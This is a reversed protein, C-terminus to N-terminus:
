AHPRVEVLELDGEPVGIRELTRRPEDRDELSRLWCEATLMRWVTIAWVQRQRGPPPPAPGPFQDRIAAPDVYQAIRAEDGALLSRALPLDHGALAEHFIADFTSKAPRVRVPEPVLGEVARRLLPRSYRADYALEPPFSLVLEILDRDILPHRSAFGALAARQRVHDYALSPGIRTVAWTLFALWRPGRARKWEGGSATQWMARRLAPDMWPPGMRGPGRLRRRAVHARAPILGEVGYDRVWKDVTKRSVGAHAGPMQRVLARAGRVRGRRLRDSMLYPSAGYLEDGGEGDLLVEIGDAVVREMLPVWFFLNPSVPPLRFREVYPLVGALLSGRRVVARTSIVGFADTLRDIQETEDVTPHDPFVASYARRPRDSEPLLKTAVGGVSSSDLGGSLLVGTRETGASCRRVAVTLAERLLATAEEAGVKRPSPRPSWWRRTRGPRPGLELLSGGEVRRVGELMTRNGPLGSSDLWHALSAADPAPTAPLLSLVQHAESGFRLVEGTDHWFLGRAAIHDRVLLGEGRGPDFLVVAFDGRMAEIATEGNRQWAALLGPEDQGAPFGDILCLADGARAPPPGTFALALPGARVHGIATDGDLAVARELARQDQEGPAGSRRLLGAFSRIV